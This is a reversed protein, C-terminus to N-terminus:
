ALPPWAILVASAVALIVALAALIPAEAPLAPGIMLIMTQAMTAMQVSGVTPRRMVENRGVVWCNLPHHFARDLGVWNVM